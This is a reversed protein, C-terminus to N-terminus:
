TVRLKLKKSIESELSTDPVNCSSVLFREISFPWGLAAVWTDLRSSLVTEVTLGKPFM